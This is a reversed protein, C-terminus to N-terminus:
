QVHPFQESMIQKVREPTIGKHYQQSLPHDTPELEFNPRWELKEIRAYMKLNLTDAYGPIQTSL